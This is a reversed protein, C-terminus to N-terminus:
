RAGAVQSLGYEGAALNARRCEIAVSRDCVLPCRRRPGFRVSIALRMPTIKEEMGTFAFVSNSMSAGGATIMSIRSSTSDRGSQDPGCLFASIVRPTRPRSVSSRALEFELGDAHGVM